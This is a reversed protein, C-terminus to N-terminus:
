GTTMSLFSRLESKSLDGLWKEGKQVTLEAIEKKSSIIENIREEFTGACIFRYVMVNKNQGIRYARDTAQDEVAPNWWLDYHIVATAATLNLGTGAAKLSLVMVRDQPDNQFRDVMEQRKKVSVGGHIFDPVTGIREGIWSVLLEGMERFQTFVIAKQGNETLEALLDLLMQAKGSHSPGTIKPDKSFLEPADCIQKLRLILKLVMASREMQSLTETVGELGDSVFAQYMAAQEATLECFRDSSIKDPLDAIVSKDTKLRRLIFPATVSRLRRVADADRNQEIPRAYDAIFSGITGFLGPNVFEMIAWYDALRNEVPTGTMAIASDAKLLCMDRFIQSGTNKINQAEDAVAIRWRLDKLKEIDQRLTGYTTLLVNARPEISRQTGYYVNVTMEPAFRRLERTWNIVVSAPVTILAPRKELEGAARLEELAAIVQVTKGLGMDDAIISGMRARINHMLWSYGREQYPRLTARLGEPVKAPPTRLEKNVAKRIRDDMFVSHGDYSGSLAAELLRLRSPRQSEGRLRRIIADIESASAYVYDNGFRVLHGAHERLEAFQEDTIERGGLTAKWDFTLLSALSMLGSGEQYGRGIGMSAIAAPRLIQRMSRPLVVMAGSLKLAPLIEFLAKQLADLSLTAHDSRGSVIDSVEPLLASIRAAAARCEWQREGGLWQVDAYSLYHGDTRDIFGLSIEASVNDDASVYPDADSSGSEGEEGKGKGENEAEELAQEGGRRLKEEADGIGPDPGESTGLILVPRMSAQGLFLPALWQGLSSEMRALASDSIDLYEWYSMTLLLLEPTQAYARNWAAEARGFNRLFGKRVFDSIFMGLCLAGFGADSFQEAKLGLAEGPRLVTGLLLKRALMGIRATLTLVEHSLICPIWIINLEGPGKRLPCPMVADALVLKRAISCLAYMAQAPAGARGLVEASIRGGFCGAPLSHMEEFMSDEATPVFVTGRYEARANGDRDESTGAGSHGHERLLYERALPDETGPSVTFVTRAHHGDDSIISGDAFIEVPSATLDPLEAAEADSRIMDKVCGRASDLADSLEARCDGGAYGSPSPALLRFASRLLGSPVKAFSVRNLHYLVDEPTKDETDDANLEPHIRFLADPKMWADATGSDAGLKKLEARLDLGRMSFLLAPNSEVLKAARKLLAVEHRCVSNDSAECSCRMEDGVSDGCMLPIGLSQLKRAFPEDLKGVQLQSLAHPDDRLEGIVTQKEDETLPDLSLSALYASTAGHSVSLYTRHDESSFWAEGTRAAKSDRQYGIVADDALNAIFRRAFDTRLFSGPAARHRADNGSKPADAAEFASLAEEDPEQLGAATGLGLKRKIDLGRWSFLLSPDNELLRLMELIFASRDASSSSSSYYGGSGSVYTDYPSNLLSIDKLRAFERFSRDLYGLGLAKALAPREEFFKLILDQDKAELGRLSIHLHKKGSDCYILRQNPLFHLRGALMGGYKKKEKAGIECYNVMAATRLWSTGWWTGSDKIEDENFGLSELMYRDPRGPSRMLLPEDPSRGELETRIEGLPVSGLPLGRWDFLVTLRSGVAQGIRIIATLLLPDSAASDTVDSGDLFLRGGAPEAHMESLLERLETPFSGRCLRQLIRYNRDLFDAIRAAQGCTFPKLALVLTKKDKGTGCAAMVGGKGDAEPDGAQGQAIIGAAEALPARQPDKVFLRIFDRASQSPACIELLAESNINKRDLLSEDNIDMGRWRLLLAPDDSLLQSARILAALKNGNGADGRSDSLQENGDPLLAVGYRSCLKQLAASVLGERLERLHQPYLYMLSCILSRKGSDYSGFSLTVTDTQGLEDTIRCRILNNGSDYTLDGARGERLAARAEGAIEDNKMLGSGDLWKQVWPANGPEERAHDAQSDPARLDSFAEAEAGRDGGSRSGDVGSPFNGSIGSHNGSKRNLRELGAKRNAEACALVSLGRWRLMLRPYKSIAAAARLALAAGAAGGIGTIRDRSGDFVESCNRELAKYADNGLSNEALSLCDSQHIRFFSRLGSDSWYSLHEFSLTPSERSGDPLTLDATLVTNGSGADASLNTLKPALKEAARLDSHAPLMSSLWTRAPLGAAWRMIIETGGKGFKESELNRLKEDRSVPLDIKAAPLEGTPLPRIPFRPISLEDYLSLGRWAFMLAPDCSVLWAACLLVAAEYAPEEPNNENRVLYSKPSLEDNATLGPALRKSLLKEWLARNMTGKRLDLSGEPDQQIIQRLRQKQPTTYRMSRLKTSTSANECYVPGTGDAIIHSFFGGCILDYGAKLQEESFQGLKAKAWEMSWWNPLLLTYGDNTM